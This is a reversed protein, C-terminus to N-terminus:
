EDAADSTYLLCDNLLYPGPEIPKGAANDPMSGVHFDIRRGTASSPDASTLYDNPFPLMCLSGAQQGIFDCDGARSLDVPQPACAGTRKLETTTKRKGLKARLTRAECSSVEARGAAGLKVRVTTRGAERLRVRKPKTLAAFAEHDFTSSSVRLKGRLKRKSKVQVRVDQKLIKDQKASLIRLKPKPKATAAGPAIVAALLALAVLAVVTRTISRM